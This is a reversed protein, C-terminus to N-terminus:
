FVRLYIGCFKTSTISQEKRAVLWLRIWHQGLATTGSPMLQDCHTFNWTNMNNFLLIQHHYILIYFYMCRMGNNWSRVRFLPYYNTSGIQNHYYSLYYIIPFRSCYIHLYCSIKRPLKNQIHSYLYMYAYIYPIVNTCLSILTIHHAIYRSRLWAHCTIAHCTHVYTVQMLWLMLILVLLCIYIDYICICSLSSYGM